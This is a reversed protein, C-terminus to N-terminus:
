LLDVELITVSGPDLLTILLFSQVSGSASVRTLYMTILSSKWVSPTTWKQLQSMNMLMTM